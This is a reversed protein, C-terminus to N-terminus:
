FPVMDNMLANINKRHEAIKERLYALQKDGLGSIFKANVKEWQSIDLDAKLTLLHETASKLWEKRHEGSEFVSDKVTRVEGVQPVAEHTHNETDNDGETPVCFTIFVASKYAASMAKNTAKDSSDMAEGYAIVTHTSGDEVSVFDYDVRLIVFYLAGGSKAERELMQHSAVRPLVVLGHKPLLPSLTNLVDDIGRFKYGKGQTNERNKGIGEKSLDLIINSIAKYVHPPQFSTATNQKTM